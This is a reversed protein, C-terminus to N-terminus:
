SWVGGGLVKRLWIRVIPGTASVTALRSIDCVRVCENSLVYRFVRLWSPVSIPDLHKSQVM